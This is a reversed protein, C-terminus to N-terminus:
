EAERSSILLKIRQRLLSWDSKVWYIKAGLEAAAEIERSSEVSSHVVVILEETLDPHERLWRLVGLGGTGPMHLDLLLFFPFPHASRDTYPEAGSLYAIGAEGNAVWHLNWNLEEKLAEQVLAAQDPEDDMLLITPKEQMGLRSKGGVFSWAGFSDARLCHACENAAVGAIGM